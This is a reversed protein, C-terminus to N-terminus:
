FLILFSFLFTLWSLRKGHLGPLVLSGQADIITDYLEFDINQNSSNEKISVIIGDTIEMTFLQNSSSDTVASFLKANKILVRM